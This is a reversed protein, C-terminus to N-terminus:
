SYTKLTTKLCFTFAFTEIGQENIAQEIAEYNVFKKVLKITPTSTFVSEKLGSSDPLLVKLVGLTSIQM